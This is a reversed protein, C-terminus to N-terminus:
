SAPNSCIAVIIDGSASELSRWRTFSLHGPRMWQWGGIETTGDALGTVEALAQGGFLLIVAIGLGWGILKWHSHSRLGAWLLLGGGVLVAPFLEAPM